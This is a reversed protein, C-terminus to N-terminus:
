MSLIASSWMGWVRWRDRRGAFLYAFLMVGSPALIPGVRFVQAWVFAIEPDAFFYLGFIDLNWLVLTWTMVAFAAHLKQRDRTLVVISLVANGVAAALPVLWQYKM